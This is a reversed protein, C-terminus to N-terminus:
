PLVTVTRSSDSDTRDLKFKFVCGGGPCHYDSEHTRADSDSGPETFESESDARSGLRSKLSGAPTPPGLPAAKLNAARSLTLSGQGGPGPGTGSLTGDAFDGNCTTCIPPMIQMFQMNLMYM